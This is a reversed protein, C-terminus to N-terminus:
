GSWEKKELHNIKNETLTAEFCNKYDQCKIKKIVCRKTDKAKKNESGDYKLYRDTKERLGIFQTMIKGGLKDKM